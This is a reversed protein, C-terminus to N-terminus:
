LGKPYFLRWEQDFARDRMDHALYFDYHLGLQKLRDYQKKDYGARQLYFGIAQHYPYVYDLKKLVALLTAISARGKAARYSELVQHAGGGYAPRVAIDILTREVRTAALNKGWETDVSAVDLRGTNKGSIIQVQYEDPLSYVLTSQRQKSTFARHIGDQSLGGSKPKPSQEANLYLNRPVEDSLGHLFAATGHCFYADRKISLALEFPTAAKWVYRVIPDLGPHNVPGLLVQKLPSSKLLSRIFDRANTHQALRWDARQSALIKAVEAPWYIKQPAAEFFAVIDPLAIQFRSQGPM